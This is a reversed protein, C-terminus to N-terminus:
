EGPGSALAGRRGEKSQSHALIFSLIDEYVDAHNTENLSEHRGGLYVTLETDHGSAKLWDYLIRPGATYRGVPDESGCLLLFPVDSPVADTWDHGGCEAILAFLDAFGSSTFMFGCDPDAIYQDVIHTDRSLWDFETRQPIFRKNYNAFAIKALLKGQSHSGFIMSQLNAFARVISVPGAKATTGSIIAGSIGEARTRKLFCSTIFSGMSHGIVFFPLNKDADDLSLLIARKADIVDSILRDNGGKDAFFGRTQADNGTKGHGRLDFAYVSVGHDAMYKAFEDYRGSHEMMGHICLLIAQPVADAPRCAFGRMECQDESVFVFPEHILM